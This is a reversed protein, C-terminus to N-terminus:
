LNLAIRVSTYRESSIFNYYFNITRRNNWNTIFAAHEVHSSHIPIDESSRSSLLPLIINFESRAAGSILEDWVRRFILSPRVLSRILFRLLFVGYRFFYYYDYRLIPVLALLHPPLSNSKWQPMTYWWWWRMSRSVCAASHFIYKALRAKTVSASLM